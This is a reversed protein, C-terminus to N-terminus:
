QAVTITGAFPKFNSEVWSEAEGIKGIIGRCPTDDILVGWDPKTFLVLRGRDSLKFAPYPTRMADANPTVTIKM